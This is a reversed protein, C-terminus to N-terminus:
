RSPDSLVLDATGRGPVVCGGARASRARVAIEGSVFLAQLELESDLATGHRPGAARVAPWCNGSERRVLIYAGSALAELTTFSFTERCLTWNVLVDIGAAELARVMADRSEPLVNVFVHQIENRVDSSANFAFFAYRDDGCHRRALDEFVPWGKHVAPAGAFGIHLPGGGRAARPTTRPTDLVLHAPPVVRAEAYALGSRQIWFELASASPAAIDPQLAAFLAQMRVTHSSRDPGYACVTCAGSTYDPAGCFSVDNRLLAYSPCITFFDHVWVVPRLPGCSGALALIAEPAHGMLHHVVLRREKVEAVTAALVRTLVSLCAVGVDVGNLTLTFRFREGEALGALMPLPAAPCLHLYSYGAALFAREEDGILNQVGGFINRYRDHSVSVILGSSHTFARQRLQALLLEKSLPARGDAAGAYQRARESPPIAGMAVARMARAVGPPRVSCRGEAAGTTAFHTLPNIGAVAVDPNAELYYRTDFSTNPNWGDRWGRCMFHEYPDTNGLVTGYTAQYYAEDFLARTASDSFGAADSM